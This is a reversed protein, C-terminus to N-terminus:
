FSGIPTAATLRLPGRIPQDMCTPLDRRIRIIRYVPNYSSAAWLPSGRTYLEYAGLALPISPILM